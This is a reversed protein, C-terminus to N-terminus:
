RANAAAEEARMEALEEDYRADFEARTMGGLASVWDWCAEREQEFAEATLRDDTPEKM